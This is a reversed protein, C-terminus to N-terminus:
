PLDGDLDGNNPAIARNKPSFNSGYSELTGLLVFFDGTGVVDGRMREPEFESRADEAGDDTEVGSKKEFIYTIGQPTYILFEL